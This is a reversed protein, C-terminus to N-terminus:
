KARWEAFLIDGVWYFRLDCDIVGRWIGDVNSNCTCGVHQVDELIEAQKLQRSVSDFHLRLNYKVPNWYNIVYHLGNDDDPDSLQVDIDFVYTPPSPELM